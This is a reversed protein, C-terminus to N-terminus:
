HTPVRSPEPSRDQLPLTSSPPAPPLQEGLGERSLGSTSCGSNVFDRRRRGAGSCRAPHGRIRETLGIPQRWIQPIPAVVM